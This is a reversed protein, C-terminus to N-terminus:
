AAQQQGSPQRSARIALLAGAGIASVVLWAPTLWDAFTLNLANDLSWAGFGVLTLAFSGAVLLIPFEWGNKAAWFGSPWHAVVTVVITDGFVLGPGLPGGIGLVILIGGIFEAVFSVVAWFTAPWFGLSGFWGTVNRLAAAGRGPGMSVPWGIKIAGHAFIVGGVGVRLVLLGLDANM